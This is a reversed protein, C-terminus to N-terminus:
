DHEPLYRAFADDFWKRYYGKSHDADRRVTRNTPIKFGKLIAAVQRGTIPKGAKYEPWRCDERQALAAVIETTFLVDKPEADPDDAPDFLERLDTLLQIGTTEADDNSGSAACCRTSSRSPM